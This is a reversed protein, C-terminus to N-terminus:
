YTWTNELLAMLPQGTAPPTRMQIYAVTRYEPENSSSNATTNASNYNVTSSVSTSNHNHTGKLAKGGTDSGSRGLNAGYNGFSVTHSHSGNGTHSHAQAAHTHTNSGGISSTTATANAKVYRGRMDPTDNEGDCLIWGIPISELSGLWIAIDGILPVLSGGTANKFVNLTRYAPQVTETTTLSGSFSNIAQTGAGTTALHRHTGVSDGSGSAYNVTLTNNATNANAHTHSSTTHTHNISHVNTTSGGTGGANQGTAAGKLFKGASGAHFTLGPRTTDSSFVMGNAPLLNYSTSKIFVVTYYPPDNSVAGYTVSTTGTNGGSVAGTTFTHTHSISTLTSGPERDSYDPYVASGTTGSHTHAALTHYHAPSTHTHTAAGGTTNPNTANATGKPYKGDLSTERVFGAPIDAHNGDFPIIVNPAIM